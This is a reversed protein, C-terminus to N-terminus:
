KNSFTIQASTLTAGNSFTFLLGGSEEPSGGGQNRGTLSVTFCLDQGTAGAPIVVSGFNAAWNLNANSPEWTITLDSTPSELVCVTFWVTTGRPVTTPSDPTITVPPPAPTATATATPTDTSTATPTDTPTNTPTDTPTDTPTVTATNTPTNTATATDTPTETPTATDTATPTNTATETPTDTVTPTETPVETPTDTATATPTHTATPTDTPVETDTPTATPVETDTATATPVETETATPVETDTATATPVETDTATATPTDTSTPTYTPTDTPTDTATPTNTPVETETATATPVETNTPTATPVETDTPTATPVETATETATSTATATATSTATATATSTASATATSTATPTPTMQEPYLRVITSKTIRIGRYLSTINVPVDFPVLKAPLMLTVSAKGPAFFVTEPVPLISPRNSNLAVIVGGTPAIGSIRVTLRGEGGARILSQLSMSSLYPRLITIRKYRKVGKYEATILVSVSETVATSKVKFLVQSEGAPITVTAPVPIVKPRDSTLKIVAGGAPATGWMTVRISITKGGTASGSGYLWRLTGPVGDARVPLSQALITGVMMAMLAIVSFTRFRGARM